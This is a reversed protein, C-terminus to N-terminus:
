LSKESYEDYLKYSYRATVAKEKTTCSSYVTVMTGKTYKKKHGLKYYGISNPSVTYTSSNTVTTSKGYAVKASVGLKATIINFEASSSVSAESKYTTSFSVTKNQASKSANKFEGQKDIVLEDKTSTPVYYQYADCVAGYPQINESDSEEANVNVTGVFLSMMLSLALLLKTKKM